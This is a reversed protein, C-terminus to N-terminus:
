AARVLDLEVGMLAYMAEGPNTMASWASAPPDVGCGPFGWDGPSPELV